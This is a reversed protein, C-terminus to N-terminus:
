ADVFDSADTEGSEHAPHVIGTLGNEACLGVSVCIYKGAASCIVQLEDNDVAKLFLLLDMM